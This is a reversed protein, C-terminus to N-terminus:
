PFMAAGSGSSAALKGGAFRWSSPHFLSIHDAAGKGVLRGFLSPISGSHQWGGPQRPGKHQPTVPWRLPGILLAVLDPKPLISRFSPWSQRLPMLYIWVYSFILHTVIILYTILYIIAFVSM